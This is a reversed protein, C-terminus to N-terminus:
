LFSYSCSCFYKRSCIRSMWSDPAFRTIQWHPKSSSALWRSKWFLSGATLHTPPTSSSSMAMAVPPLITGRKSSNVASLSPFAPSTRSTVKPVIFSCISMMSSHPLLLATVTSTRPPLWITTSSAFLHRWSAFQQTLFRIRSGRTTGPPPALSIAAEKATRAAASLSCVISWYLMFPKADASSTIGIASASFLPRCPIASIAFSLAIWSVDPFAQCPTSQMCVPVVSIHACLM